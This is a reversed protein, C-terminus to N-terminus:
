FWLLSLLSRNLLHRYTVICLSIELKATKVTYRQTVEKHNSNLAEIQGTFPPLFTVTGPKSKWLSCHMQLICKISLQQNCGFTWGSCYLCKTTHYTLLCLDTISINHVAIPFGKDNRGQIPIIYVAIDLISIPWTYSDYTNRISNM